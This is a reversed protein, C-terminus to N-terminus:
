NINKLLDNYKKAINRWDFNEKIYKRNKKTDKKELENLNISETKKDMLQVNIKQNQLGRLGLKTTIVPLGRAMYEIIKLNSGAGSFIPNIAFDASKMLIDKEFDNVKGFAIVNKPLIEKKTELYNYIVTGLIFFTIKKNTKAIKIIKEIAELNPKHYSGIFIGIKKNKIELEAKLNEKEYEESPQATLCNTGNPIIEIKNKNIKYIKSLSDKEEKSVSIIKKSAKCLDRELKYVQNLYYKTKKNKGLIAKKLFYENNHAEYIIHKKPINKLHNFMYPHQCIIITNKNCNKKLVRLYDKIDEKKLNSIYIDDIPIKLKRDKSEIKNQIEKKLPINYEILNPNIINIKKQNKYMVLNIIRIKYDRSLESFLEKIRIQGGSCPNEISYTNVLVLNIKKNISKTEEQNKKKLFGIEKVFNKWTINKVSNFAKKGMKKTLKKNKIMEKMKKSLDPINAKAIKGNTGDKILEAPGGSDSCTLVAKKSKMAELTVFGYDENFPVFPVFLCKSYYEKLRDTNVFGLLKVRKDRGIIKKLNGWEVGTGAIKLEINKIKIKKFAKIIWDIRKLKELRSATFIFNNYNKCLNTDSLPPYVVKVEEKDKDKFYDKRNKVTQSQTFKSKCESIGVRDLFRIIDKLLPSELFDLNLKQIHIKNKELLIFLKEVKEPNYEKNKLIEKIEKLFKSKDIKKQYRKELSENFNYLEYLGRQPHQLYLIKEKARAMWSGTKTVIIKDYNSLELKFFNKYAEIIGWFNQLNCQVGILEFEANSYKNFNELMEDYLKEAGGYNLKDAKKPDKADVSELPFIIAIKM